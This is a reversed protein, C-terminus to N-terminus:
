SEVNAQKSFDELKHQYEKLLQDVSKTAPDFHFLEMSPKDGLLALRLSSGLTRNMREQFDHKVKDSGAVKKAAETEISEIKSENAELVGRHAYLKQDLQISNKLAKVVADRDENNETLRAMVEAMSKGKTNYIRTYKDCVAELETTQSADLYFRLRLNQQQWPELKGYEIKNDTGFIEINKRSKMEQQGWRGANRENFEVTGPLPMRVFVKYSNDNVVYVGQGFEVFQDIKDGVQPYKKKLFERAASDSKKMAELVGAENGIVGPVRCGASVYISDNDRVAYKVDVDNIREFSGNRFAEIYGDAKMKEANNERIFKELDGSKSEDWNKLSKQSWELVQDDTGEKGFNKHYLDKAWAWAEKAAESVDSAVEQGGGIAEKAVGKGGEYVGKAIGGAGAAVGIALGKVGRGIGHGIENVAGGVKEGTKAAAEAFKGSSVYDVAAAARPAMYNYARDVTGHVADVTRSVLSDQMEISKDEIMESGVVERWTAKPTVQAYKRMLQEVPYRKFFVDLSTYIQKPDMDKQMVTPLVIENKGLDRAKKYESALYMFDKDGLYITSARLIEAQDANTKYTKTWFSETAVNSKSWDSVTDLATKGTFVKFLTNGFWAFGGIKLCTWMTEKIKAVRPSESGMLMAAGIIGGVVVLLKEKGDLNGFNKKATEMVGAFEEKVGKEVKTKEKERTESFQERIKFMRDCYDRVVRYTYYGRQLDAENKLENRDNLEKHIDSKVMAENTSELLNGLNRQDLYAKTKSLVNFMEAEGKSHKAATLDVATALTFSKDFNEATIGRQRLFDSVYRANLTEKQPIRENEANVAEKQDYQRYYDLDVHPDIPGQAM